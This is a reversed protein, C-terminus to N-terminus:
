SPGTSQLTCFPQRIRRFLVDSQPLFSIVSVTDTIRLTVTFDHLDRSFTHESNFGGLNDLAGRPSGLVRETHSISLVSSFMICLVSHQPSLFVM